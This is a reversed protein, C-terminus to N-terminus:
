RPPQPRRLEDVWQQVVVIAPPTATGPPPGQPQRIVLFRGDPMVDYSASAGVLVAIGDVLQAPRGASWNAGPSISVGMITGGGRGGGGQPGQAAQTPEGPAAQPGAGRPGAGTGRAAYFLEDGRRSWTPLTGGGTSVQWRGDNVNPYPRVYIESQGSETSQYAIWRGDPSVVANREDFNSQLLPVPQGGGTPITMVDFTTNNEDFIIQKGDPSASTPMQDRPANTIQQPASGSDIAQLYVSSTGAQNSGFLVRRNDLWVPWWERAPGISLRSLTDRGIDWIWIDNEQDRIELAARTGDPSIRLATYTRAPLNVAQETGGRDVWALTRQPLTAPPGGAVYVLTGDDAIDFDAAGVQTTRVGTQLVRPDGTVELADLDFPVFRLDAGAVYVLHGSPVYRAYSGGRIVVTPTTSGAALVAIQAANVDGSAPVITFLLGRGDPLHSPWTHDSEGRSRDPTTLAQVAGGDAPIRQLGTALQSTAFVINNDPGWSAGLAGPGDIRTLTSSSGGGLSITKLSLGDFFGVSEGDPSVFPQQANGVGALTTGDLQDLPRVILRGGPARYIVRRGDPTIALSRGDGAAIIPADDAPVINLRTLPPREPSVQLRTVVGAAIAAVVATVGLLAATKWRGGPRDHVVISASEGPAAMAEDIDLRADGADALRRKRDKQMARRLLRRLAPPTHRPLKSWDPDHTLVLAITEAVDEAKFPSVGTLMEYVVCGFAWMDSRKDAARGKAQEPSMYAATGMIIGVGTMMAPSSVVPSATRTEDDGGAKGTRAPGSGESLKALGFDLVKVDGDPTLRINSPKLDRHIIGQEHAAELADAIQRAISLAEPVPIPGREIRDALTEGDILELVLARGEELGYIAGINPHKLAALLQAERQFRALRDPDASFTDPLVKLAVDRGLRHDRARYVEGMGGVGLQGTVEYPGIRTGPALPM